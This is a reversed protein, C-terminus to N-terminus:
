NIRRFRALPVHPPMRGVFYAPAGLADRLEALQVRCSRPYPRYSHAWLLISWPDRCRRADILAESWWFTESADLGIQGEMAHICDTAFTVNAQTIQQGPFRSLDALPPLTDGEVELADDTPPPTFVPCPAFVPPHYRPAGAARGQCGHGFCAWCAVLALLLVTLVFLRHAPPLLPGSMGFDECCDPAPYRAM